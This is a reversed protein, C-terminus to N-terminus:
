LYAGLPTANYPPNVRADWDFFRLNLGINPTFKYKKKNILPYSFTQHLELIKNRLDGDIFDNTASLNKYGIQTTTSIKKYFIYEYGINVGLGHVNGKGNNSYSTNLKLQSFSSFFTTFQLYLFLFLLKKM